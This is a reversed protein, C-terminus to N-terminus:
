SQAPELRNSLCRDIRALVADRGLIALSDFIPPSITGGSIAARLPQAVKGLNGDCNSLAWDTVAQELASATWPEVAALMDRVADLRDYGPVNGNALAKRVGKVDPWDIAADPLVFFRGSDFPELLTKSREKNSEAFTQFQEPTLAQLFGPEYREAFARLLEVWTDVSMAQIADLNFARLKARDFKAPSKVIRDLSFNAILFDRDFQERDGGPSWGLLALYNLLVEPLYGAARFDSVNIEPLEIGLVKALAEAQATSLQGTKDGVWTAWAEAAIGCGDPPADIGQERVHARLAKDKDRKSMKSGDPNFILPLHAYHPHPVGLAEQLLLHKATNNFHEQARLVYTIEMLADDLVVAFHYTPFGDAKRIIFDDIEGAPITAEGLVEDRIVVDRDPTRFRVVPDEGAAARAFREDREIDLGARDYRYAQKAERSARRKADLEEVSDFAHYARDRELLDNMREEYLALRQSQFYPGHDGRISGDPEPGEDWSIGLWTLDRLFGLASTESSRRQDTDEIRLIFRGQHGRAFAWCFLATRASGVHLYGSPSPAFRPVIGSASHDTPTM